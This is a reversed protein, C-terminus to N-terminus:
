GSLWRELWVRERSSRSINLWENMWENLNSLSYRFAKHTGTSKYWQPCLLSRHLSVTRTTNCKLWQPLPCSIFLALLPSHIPSQHYLIQRTHVFGQVGPGWLSPTITCVQLGLVRSASAPSDLAWPWRWPCLSDSALRPYMFGQRLFMFYFMFVYMGIYMCVALGTLATPFQPLLVTWFPRLFVSARLFFTASMNPTTAGPLTRM